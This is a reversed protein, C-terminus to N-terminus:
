APDIFTTGLKSLDGPAFVYLLELPEDDTAIAHPLGAPLHITTGPRGEFVEDGVTFRARGAVVFYAETAEYHLHLPHEIHPEMRYVGIATPCDADRGVVSSHILAQCAGSDQPQGHRDVISVWEVEERYVVVGPSRNVARPHSSSVRPPPM